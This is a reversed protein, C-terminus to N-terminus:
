ELIEKNRAIRKIKDDKFRQILNIAQDFGAELNGEKKQKSLKRSCHKSIPKQYGPLNPDDSDSDLSIKSNM